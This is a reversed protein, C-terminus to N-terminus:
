AGHLLITVLVASDEVAKLAHAVGGALCLLEGASLLQRAGAVTLEVRGELCQISIEGAVSHEPVAKDAPLVMRIVELHDSKYLATTSARRLGSGLPRLDIVEGSMAHHLAM